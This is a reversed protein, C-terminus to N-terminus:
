GPKTNTLQEANFFRLAQISYYIKSFCEFDLSFRSIVTLVIPQEFDICTPLAHKKEICRLKVGQNTEGARSFRFLPSLAVVEAAASRSLRSLAAFAQFTMAGEV